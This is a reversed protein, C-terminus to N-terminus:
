IHWILEYVAIVEWGADKYINNAKVIAAAPNEVEFIREKLYTTKNHRMKVLYKKM